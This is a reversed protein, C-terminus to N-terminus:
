EYRLAVMPDVTTARRAPIFSAFLAILFLLASLSAYTALDTPTVDFLLNKLVRTAGLAGAIGIAVGISVLVASRSM